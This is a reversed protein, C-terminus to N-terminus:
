FTFETTAILVAAFISAGAIAATLLAHFLASM